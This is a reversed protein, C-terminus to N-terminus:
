EEVEEQDEITGQSSLVYNKLWKDFFSAKEEDTLNRADVWRGKIVPHRVKPGEPTLTVDDEIM